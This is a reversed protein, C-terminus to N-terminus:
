GPGHGGGGGGGGSDDGTETPEATETPEPTETARPTRTPRPTRRDTETPEATETPSATETPEATETPSPSPSETQSPSPLPTATPAPTAVPTPTPGPTSSLFAAAGVGVVATMSGVALAAVLVFALAQARVAFPRGPAAAVRWADRLSLLFGALVGGRMTRGSTVVLRAPAEVAIAAMVRDEFDSSPVVRDIAAQDELARAMATAEALEAESPGAGLEPRLESPQFPRGPGSM